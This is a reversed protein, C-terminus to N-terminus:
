QLVDFGLGRINKRESGSGFLRTQRQEFEIESQVFQRLVLDIDILPADRCARIDIPNEIM